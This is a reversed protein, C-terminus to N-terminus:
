VTVWARKHMSATVWIRVSDPLLSVIGVRWLSHGYISHVNGAAQGWCGQQRVGTDRCLSWGVTYGHVTVSPSFGEHHRTLPMM